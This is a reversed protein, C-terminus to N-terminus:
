VLCSQHEHAELCTGRDVEHEIAIRLAQRARSLGSMVSGVPIGLVNALERYSLGEFERLTLLERFREPLGAIMRGILADSDARLLLAEPDFLVPGAVTHREEDFEDDQWRSVAALRGHCTNRVIKLFWARGNGGTFTKFYRLARLVADQVVDEADQDNRMIWRALRYGAHLHPVVVTEFSESHTSLVDAM